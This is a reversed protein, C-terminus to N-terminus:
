RLILMTSHPPHSGIDAPDTGRRWERINAFGDGDPDSSPDRPIGNADFWSRPVGGLDTGGFPAFDPATGAAHYRHVLDDVAPTESFTVSSIKGSAAATNPLRLWTGGAPAAGPAAAGDVARMARGEIRIQAYAAPAATTYDFDVSVRIWGNHPYTDHEASEMGNALERGLQSWVYGSGSADGHLACAHGTEDFALRLQATADSAIRTRWNADDAIRVQVLMDVSQNDRAFGNAYTRTADDGGLTLVQAHTENPLPVGPPNGIDPTGATVVGYGTWGSLSSAATGVAPEEFSDSGITTNTMARVVLSVSTRGGAAPEEVVDTEWGLGAVADAFAITGSVPDDSTFLAIEQASDLIGDADGTRYLLTGGSVGALYKVTDIDCTVTGGAVDVKGNGSLEDEDLVLTGPGLAVFDDAIEGFLIYTHGSPVEIFGGDADAVDYYESVGSAIGSVFGKAAEPDGGGYRVAGQAVYVRGSGGLRDGDLVLTGAGTKTFQGTLTNALTFTTGAPVDIVGATAGAARLARSSLTLGSSAPRFTAGNTLVIGGSGALAASAFSCTVNAGDLTLVGSFSSSSGTFTVDFATGSETTFRLATGSSGSLTSALTFTRTSVNAEEAAAFVFPASAPANVTATGALTVGTASDQGAAVAWRGNNLTLSGVTITNGWGINRVRGALGGVRGIALSRGGFTTDGNQPFWLAATGLNAVLYDTGSHPAAGDSWNGATAFSQTNWNDGAKLFVANAYPDAAGSEKRVIYDRYALYAPKFTYDSHLIGFHSEADSSSTEPAKLEYVFFKEVGNAFAIAAANTIFSAQQAESVGSSHTPWGMETLWLPKSGDGNSSMVSKVSNINRIFSHYTYGSLINGTRWEEDPAHPHVYPHYAVADCYNKVGNSYLSSLYDAGSATVGGLVVTVTSDVAKIATYARQMIKKFDAAPIVGWDENDPENWIEVATFRGRFHTVFASVFAEWNDLDDKAEASTWPNKGLLIPLPQVGHAEASDFAGDIQWWNFVNTASAGVYNWRVDFRVWEIGAAACRDFATDRNEYEGGASVSWAVHECIGFAGNGAAFAASLPAICFASHLIRFATVLSSHRTVLARCLRATVLSSHRTVLSM